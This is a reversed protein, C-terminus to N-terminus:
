TGNPMFFCFVDDRTPMPYAPLCLHWNGDWSPQIRADPIFTDVPKTRMSNIRQAQQVTMRLRIGGVEGTIVGPEITLTDCDGYGDADKTTCCWGKTVPDYRKTYEEHAKAPSVAALVTIGIMVLLLTKLNM